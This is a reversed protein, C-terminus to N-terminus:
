NNQLIQNIAEEVRSYNFQFGFNIIKECSANNGGLVIESREGLMLKLVFAPINPLSIKKDLAKAICYTLEKNTVPNPAVANYIGKARRNKIAYIIMRCLDDIHIWSVYQNGSGLPAGVGYKIPLMIKKFAGGFGSLVLGIRLKVVRIGLQSFTDASNEWKEVVEALFGDGKPYDEAIFTDGTNVGYIGIGSASIFTNVHANSAQIAQYILKTSDIRSDNIKQKQDQSWRKDAVSEGALHVVADINTLSKDEIKGKSVDWQYVEVESKERKNRSLHSVQHGKELLMKTLRTGVLGTGGTILINM